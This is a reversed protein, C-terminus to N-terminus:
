AMRCMIMIGCAGGPDAISVDVDRVVPVLRFFFTRKELSVTGSESVSMSSRRMRLGRFDAFDHNWNSIEKSPTVRRYRNVEKTWEGTDISRRQQKQKSINNRTARETGPKLKFENLTQITETLDHSSICRTGGRNNNQKVSIYHRMESLLKM